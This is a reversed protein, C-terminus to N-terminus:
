RGLCARVEWRSGGRVSFGGCAQEMVTHTKYDEEGLMAVLLEVDAPKVLGSEADMPMSSMLTLVEAFFGHSKPYEAVANLMADVPLGSTDTIEGFSEVLERVQEESEAEFVPDDAGAIRITDRPDISGDELRPLEANPAGSELELLAAELKKQHKKLASMKKGSIAKARKLLQEERGELEAFISKFEAEIAQEASSKSAEILDGISEVVQAAAKLDDLKAEVEEASTAPLLIPM